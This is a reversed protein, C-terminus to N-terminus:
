GLFPIKLKKGLVHDIPVPGIERSDTSYNRNDGMVFIQGPPVTIAEFPLLMPENTYTENLQEGNRWVKGDRFELSDGPKGIVRKVWINHDSERSVFKIIPSDLIDDKWDRPREVRSDIIVIDDYNPKYPTIRPLKSVYIRQGNKLTPYMSPGVVKTPQFLFVGIFISLLVAAIIYLAWTFIEKTVNTQTM